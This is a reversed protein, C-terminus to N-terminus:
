ETLFKKLDGPFVLIDLYVKQAEKSGTIKVDKANIVIVGDCL